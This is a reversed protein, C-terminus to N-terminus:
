RYTSLQPRSKTGALMQFMASVSRKGEDKAGASNQRPMAAGKANASFLKRTATNTRGNKM